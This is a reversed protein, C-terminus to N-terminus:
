ASVALRFQECILRFQGIVGVAVGLNDRGVPYNQDVTEELDQCDNDSSNM